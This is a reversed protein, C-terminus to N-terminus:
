HSNRRDGRGDDAADNRAARYYLILQSDEASRLPPSHLLRRQSALSVGVWDGPVSVGVGVYSAVGGKDNARIIEPRHSQYLFKWM